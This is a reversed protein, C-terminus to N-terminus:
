IFNIKLVCCIFTLIDIEKKIKNSLGITGHGGTTAIRGIIPNKNKILKKQLSALFKYTHHPAVCGDNESTYLFVGPYERQAINHIPSYNYLYMFDSINKPDGYESKWLNGYNFKDFNLMDYIGVEAIACKFLNPQRNITAGVLLGGNSKGRCILKDKDVYNNDILGTAVAQFDDFSNTKNQQKGANHWSAGYEGGGRICAIAIDIGMVDLMIIKYPDFLPVMSMNFGGYGYLILGSNTRNKKTIIYTPIDADDNKIMRREVNFLESNHEFQGFLIKNKWVLESKNSSIDYKYIKKPVVFSVVSYYMENSFKSCSVSVTSSEPININIDDIFDNIIM